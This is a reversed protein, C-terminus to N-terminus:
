DYGFVETSAGWSVIVVLFGMFVRCGSCEDLFIILKMLELGMGEKSKPDMELTVPLRGDIDTGVM